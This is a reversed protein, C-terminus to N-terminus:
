MFGYSDVDINRSFINRIFLSFLFVSLSIFSDILDKKMNNQFQHADESGVSNFFSGKNAFKEYELDIPRGISVFGRRTYYFRIRIYLDIIFITIGTIFIGLLSSQNKNLEYSGYMFFFVLFLAMIIFEIFSYIFTIRQSIFYLIYSLSYTFLTQGISLQGSIVYHFCLFMSFLMIGIRYGFSSLSFLGSFFFLTFLLSAFRPSPFLYLENIETNDIGHYACPPGQDLLVAFPFFISYVYSLRHFFTMIVLRSTIYLRSSKGNDEKEGNSMFVITLLLLLIFCSFCLILPESWCFLSRILDEFVDGYKPILLCSNIKSDGINNSPEQYM